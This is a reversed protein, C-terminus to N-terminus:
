IFNRLPNKVSKLVSNGSITKKWKFAPEEM